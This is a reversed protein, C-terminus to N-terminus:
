GDLGHKDNLPSVHLYQKQGDLQFTFQKATDINRLDTFKEYLHQATHRILPISSRPLWTEHRQYKIM